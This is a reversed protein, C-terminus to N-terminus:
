FNKKWQKVHGQQGFCICICIKTFKISFIGIAMINAGKTGTWYETGQEKKGASAFFTLWLSIDWFFEIVKSVKEKKNDVDLRMPFGFKKNDPSDLQVPAQTSM